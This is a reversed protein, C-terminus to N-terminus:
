YLINSKDKTVIKTKYYIKDSKLIVMWASKHNSNLLVYKEMM